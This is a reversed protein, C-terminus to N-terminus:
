SDLNTHLGDRANARYALQSTYIVFISVLDGAGRVELLKFVEVVVIADNKRQCVIVRTLMHAKNVSSDTEGWNWEGYSVAGKEHLTM